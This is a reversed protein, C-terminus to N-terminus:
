VFHLGLHHVPGGTGGEQEQQVEVAGEGLEIWIRARRAQGRLAPIQDIADAHLAAGGDADDAATAEIVEAVSQGELSWSECRAIKERLFSKMLKM